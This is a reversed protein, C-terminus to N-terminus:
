RAHQLPDVAKSDRFVEFHIHPGTVRGTEGSTAIIQGQVVREGKKVLIRSNHAYRTRVGDGHDLIVFNGYVANRWGAFVVAGGLAARVPTGVPARLDVGHHFAQWRPGFRSTIAGRSPLQM